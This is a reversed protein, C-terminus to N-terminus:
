LTAIYGSNSGSRQPGVIVCVGLIALELSPSLSVEPRDYSVLENINRTAHTRHARIDLGRAVVLVSLYYYQNRSHSYSKNVANSKNVVSHEFCMYYAFVYDYDVIFALIIIGTTSNCTLRNGNANITRQYLEDSAIRVTRENAGHGLNEQTLEV